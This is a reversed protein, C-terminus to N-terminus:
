YIHSNVIVLGQFGHTILNKEVAQEEGIIINRIFRCGENQLDILYDELNLGETKSIDEGVVELTERRLKKALWISSDAANAGCCVLCSWPHCFQAVDALSKSGTLIVSKISHANAYSCGVISHHNNQECCNSMITRASKESQENWYNYFVYLPFLKTGTLLSKRKGEAILNDVGDAPAHGKKNYFLHNYEGSGTFIKKAQICMGVVQGSKSVFAWLWDAGTAGEARRSVQRIILRKPQRMQLELLNIDTISEEGINFKAKHANSLLNWTHTAVERFDICLTDDVDASDQFILRKM